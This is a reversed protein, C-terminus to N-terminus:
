MTFDFLYSSTENNEALNLALEARKLQANLIKIQRKKRFKFATLAEEKTPYAYKKKASNLVLHCMEKEFLETDYISVWVGKPTRKIVYYESVQVSVKRDTYLIDYYRYYVENV